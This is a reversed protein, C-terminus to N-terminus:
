ADAWRGSGLCRCRAARGRGTGVARCWTFLAMGSLASMVGYCSMPASVVWVRGGFRPRATGAGKLGIGEVRLSLLVSCIYM